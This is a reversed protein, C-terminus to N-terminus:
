TIRGRRTALFDRVEARLTDPDVSGLSPRGHGAHPARDTCPVAPETVRVPVPTTETDDGRRDGASMADARRGRAEGVRVDAWGVQCGYRLERMDWAGAPVVVGASSGCRQVASAKMPMAWSMTTRSAVMTFM